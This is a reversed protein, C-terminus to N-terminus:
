EGKNAVALIAEALTPERDTHPWDFPFQKSEGYNDRVPASLSWLGPNFLYPEVVLRLDNGLWALVAEPIAGDSVEFKMRGSEVADFEDLEAGEEM